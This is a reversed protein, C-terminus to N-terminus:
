QDSGQDTSFINGWRFTANYPLYKSFEAVVIKIKLFM